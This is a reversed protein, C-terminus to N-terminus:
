KTTAKTTAKGTSKKAATPTAGGGSTDTVPPPVFAEVTLKMTVYTVGPLVKKQRQDVPLNTDKDKEVLYGQNLELKSLSNTLDTTQHDPVMVYEGSKLPVYTQPFKPDALAQQTAAADVLPGNLLFSAKEELMSYILTFTKAAPISISPMGLLPSLMGGYQTGQRLIKHILSEKKALSVNVAMKGSGGPLIIKNEASMLNAGGQFSALQQLSPLQGASDTYLSALAVWAAPALINLFPATQVCDIRLQASTLNAIARADDVGPRFQGLVVSVAADGPHSLLEDPKLQESYILGNSSHNYLYKVEKKPDMPKQPPPKVGKKGRTGTSGANDFFGHWFKTSDYPVNDPSAATAARNQAGAAEALLAALGGSALIEEFFNRRSSGM